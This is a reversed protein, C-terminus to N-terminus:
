RLHSSVCLGSLWLNVWLETRGLSSYPLKTTRRITLRKSRGNKREAHRDRRMILLRTFCCPPGTPIDGKLLCCVDCARKLGDAPTVNKYLIEDMIVRQQFLIITM